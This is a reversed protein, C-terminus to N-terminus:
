TFLIVSWYLLLKLTFFVLHFQVFPVNQQACAQTLLQYLCIKTCYLLVIIIMSSYYYLKQITSIIPIISTPPLCVPLPVPPHHDQSVSLCIFLMFYLTLFRQLFILQTQKFQSQWQSSVTIQLRTLSSYICNVNLFCWM